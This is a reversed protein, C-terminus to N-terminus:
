SGGRVARARKMSRIADAANVTGSRFHIAWMKSSLGVFPTSSSWTGSPGVAGPLGARVAPHYASYDVLSHLERLTPLRWDNYGAYGKGGETNLAKLWAGAADTWTCTVDVAHLAELCTGKGPVKVEWMLETVQDTFTGDGNDTFTGDGNAIQTQLGLFLGLMVALLRVGGIPSWKRHVM